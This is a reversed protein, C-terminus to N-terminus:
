NTILIRGAIPMAPVYLLSPCDREQWYQAWLYVSRRAQCYVRVLGRGHTSGIGVVDYTYLAPCCLCLWQDWNTENGLEKQCFNVKPWGDVTTNPENRKWNTENTLETENCLSRFFTLLVDFRREKPTRKASDITGPHGLPWPVSARTGWVCTLLAPTSGFGLWQHQAGEAGTSNNSSPKKQDPM